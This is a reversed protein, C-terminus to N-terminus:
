AVAFCLMLGFVAGFTAATMLAWCTLARETYLSGIGSAVTVVLTAAWLWGNYPSFAYWSM